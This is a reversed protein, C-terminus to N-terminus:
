VCIGCFCFRAAASIAMPWRTIRLLSICCTRRVAPWMRTFGSAVLVRNLPPLRRPWAMAGCNVLCSPPQMLSQNNLTRSLLNLAQEFEIGREQLRHQNLTYGEVLHQKLTNTAWIRFQTARSSNVRYGVSIIADLSYTKRKRSVERGGEMQVQLFDKCAAEESFGQEAYINKLHMTINQPKVAFLDAMQAQTLWLTDADLQVKLQVSGDASTYIQIQQNTM